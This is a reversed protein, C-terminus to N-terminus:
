SLLADLNFAKILGPQQQQHLGNQQHKLGREQLAPRRDRRAVSVTTRRKSLATDRTALNLMTSASIMQCSGEPKLPLANEAAAPDHAHGGDWCGSASVVPGLLQKPQQYQLKHAHHHLPVQQQHQMGHWGHQVPVGRSWPQHGGPLAPYWAHQVQPMAEAMAQQGYHQPLLLGQQCQNQIAATADQILSLPQTLTQQAWGQPTSVAGAAVAADKEASWSWEAGPHPLQHLQQQHLQQAPQVQQVHQSHQPQTEHQMHQSHQSHQPQPMHQMLQAHQASPLWHSPQLHQAHQAQQSPCPWGPIQGHQAPQSPHQMPMHSSLCGQGAQLQISPLSIVSHMSRMGPLQQAQQLVAPAPQM